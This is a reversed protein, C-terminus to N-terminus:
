WTLVGREVDEMFRYYDEPVGIDIFYGENVVGGLRRGELRWGPIMDNELSSRGEPIADMLPRTMLYVGGNITGPRRSSTKENFGTLMGDTLVAQGYRSVDDTQRLVLVM